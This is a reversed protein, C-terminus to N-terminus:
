RKPRGAVGAGPAHAPAARPDPAHAPEPADDDPLATDENEPVPDPWKYLTEVKEIQSVAEARM